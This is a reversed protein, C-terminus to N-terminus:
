LKLELNQASSSTNDSLQPSTQVQGIIKSGVDETLLGYMFLISRKDNESIVFRNKM